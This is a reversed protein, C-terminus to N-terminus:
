APAVEVAPAAPATEEKETTTARADPPTSGREGGRGRGGRGGGAGGRDNNFERRGGGGPGRRGRSGSPSFGGSAYGASHDHTQMRKGEIVADAIAATLLRCVKPADDNAPIPFAIRSPDSNTDAVGVVPINLKRAEAVAIEEKVLDVIFMLQPLRKMERIGGLSKQLKDLEKHIRVREKKVIRVKSNEEEASKVLEELKNMREIASRITTFNSMTGGLWRDTVFFAGCRTAEEQIIDRCQQKTGVFMIAGGAAVTEVVFKRAREWLKVSADLNIIHIGNRDGFIYPSMRPNWRQTQHGFHAGADLMSKVTVSAGSLVMSDAARPQSIVRPMTPTSGGATTVSTPTAGEVVTAVATATTEKKPNAKKETENSM